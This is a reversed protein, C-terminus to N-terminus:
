PKEFVVIIIPVYEGQRSPKWIHIGWDGAPSTAWKWTQDGEDGLYQLPEIPKYKM